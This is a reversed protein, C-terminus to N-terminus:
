QGKWNRWGSRRLMERAACPMTWHEKWAGEESMPDEPLQKIYVNEIYKAM